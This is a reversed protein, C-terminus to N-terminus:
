SGWSTFVDTTTNVACSDTPPGSPDLIQCGSAGGLAATYWTGSGDDRFKMTHSQNKNTSLGITNGGDFKETMYVGAINGWLHWSYPTYVTRSLDYTGDNNTDIYAPYHDDGVGDQLDDIRVQYANGSAAGLDYCESQLLAGDSSRWTEISVFYRIADTNWGNPCSAGHCAWNCDIRMVGAQVIGFGYDDPNPHMIWASQLYGQGMLGNWLTDGTCPYNSGVDQVAVVGTKNGTGVGLQVKTQYTV